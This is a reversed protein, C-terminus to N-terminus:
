TKVGLAELEAEIEENTMTKASKPSMTGDSSSHDIHQTERWGAQTKLYFMAASTNGDMAQKVLGKAVTGIARAKGKKYQELVEPQRECIATFTNRAIGFYDAIQEQSLVAALAGVEIVQEPTFVHPPQGGKNTTM